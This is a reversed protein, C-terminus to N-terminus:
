QINDMVRGWQFVTCHQGSCIIELESWGDGGGWGREVHRGVEEGHLLPAEISVGGGAIEHRRVEEM